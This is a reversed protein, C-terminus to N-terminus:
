VTEGGCSSGMGATCAYCHNGVAIKRKKVGNDRLDFITLRDLTELEVAQNFDCDYIRGDWAVSIQNRCMINKVSDPNYSSYLLNMYGCLNNTKELYDGYRGIPNNTICFLNDFQINFDKYFKEKYVAELSSQSGALFAGNPNYVFDLKLLKGDKNKGGTGYGIENLKKLVEISKKFVGNGRQIDTTKENYFPMSCVINVGLDRYLDILHSFNKERLIVLNTRVIINDTLNSAEKLFWEFNPNMEPAGGTIDIIKFPHSKYVDLCAELVEKSMIEKRTPGGNVHCHKCELNCLFGVNIQMIDLTDRTSLLELDDVTDQFDPVIDKLDDIKM